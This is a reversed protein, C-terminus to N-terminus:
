ASGGCSSFSLVSGAVAGILCLLAGELTGFALGAAIEVPEGPIFAVLVQLVVIGVFAVRAIWGKEAVWARLVEPEKLFALIPGSLVISLTIMAALFAVAGVVIWVKKRTIKKDKDTM